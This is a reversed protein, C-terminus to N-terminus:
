PISNRFIDDFYSSFNEMIHSVERDILRKFNDDFQTNKEPSLLKQYYDAWLNVIEEPDSIIRGDETTLV